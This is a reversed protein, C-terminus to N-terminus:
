GAGEAEPAAEKDGAAGAASARKVQFPLDKERGVAAAAYRKVAEPYKTEAMSVDGLLESAKANASDKALAAELSSRAKDFTRAKLNCDGLETLADGGALSRGTTLAPLATACDDSAYAARGLALNSGPDKPALKAAQKGAALAAPKDGAMLLALGAQAQAAPNGPDAALAEDALAGAKKWDKAEAAKVSEEVLAAAKAKPDAAAPAAAPAGTAPASPAPAAPAAPGQASVLRSSFLLALGIARGIRHNM